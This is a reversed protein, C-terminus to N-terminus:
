GPRADGDTRAPREQDIRVATGFCRWAVWCLPVASALTLAAAKAALAPEPGSDSPGVGSLALLVVAVGAMTIVVAALGAVVGCSAWFLVRVTPAGM